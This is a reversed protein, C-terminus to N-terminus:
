ERRELGDINQTYVRLLLGKHHLVRVFYHIYNPRHNGPYLAKALSFFPLPDDSFYDINFVAEPYPINYRELNAYLGTGPTRFVLAAGGADPSASVCFFRASPPWAAVQLRPDRQRHKNGSRSGGACEQLPGAPGPPGCLGPRRPVEGSRGQLVSPGACPRRRRRRRRRQSLSCSLFGADTSAAWEPSRLIKWM